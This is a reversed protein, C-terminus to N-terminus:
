FPNNAARAQAQSGIRVHAEPGLHRDSAWLHTNTGADTQLTTTLCNVVSTTTCAATTVNYPSLLFSTPSIHMATVIDDALILGYNRGDYKTPDIRTRLFANFEYSMSALAAKAGAKATEQATAYPSLSMDPITFVLARAGTGLIANVAAATVTGLRQSEAVAQALTLQGNRFREYVAIVDNVGMMVTVLDTKSLGGTVRAVQATLGTTADEVRGNVRAQIEAKPTVANPNCEKTVYGYLTLVSQSFTPLVQCKGATTATRDNIGYKFGDAKGDDVIVSSEDGLIVVRAPKFVEVQSTGGGCATLLAMSVVALCAPGALLWRRSQGSEPPLAERGTRCFERLSTMM